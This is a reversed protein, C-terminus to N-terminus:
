DADPREAAVALPVLEAVGLVRRERDVSRTPRIRVSVRRRVVGRGGTRDREIGTAALHQQAVLVGPVGTAGVRDQRQALHRAHLRLLTVRGRPRRPATPLVTGAAAGTEGSASLGNIVSTTM